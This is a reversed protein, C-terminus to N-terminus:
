AQDKAPRGLLLQDPLSTLDGAGLTLCLDGPRLEADLEAILDSRSPVYRVEQEPHAARVAGAILAGSIGPVAAEGAAYVDSVVVVDAGAFSDAFDQWLAATRSYRHPQFVAVVRDWGGAAATAVVVAVEGPLHGYDDVFTVGHREGRREFRRAVGGFRELAPAAVEFPVGIGLALALAGTANLANHRGPINLTVTGLREGGRTLDFTVGARVGNVGVLRLDADAVSGYTAAGPLRDALRAAAAGDVCVARPGAAASLFDAFAAELHAMDGYYDLHDAELSTVVAGEAGLRLFTGDSEDAEVVLWEGTDWRAGPGIGAIDGGVIFSPRLGAAVLITALMSSTTTKGHTGAVALVRRTACIAALMDARSLVPISQDRAWAVEPDDPGVATSATLADIGALRAPDHGVWTDVGVERVRRVVASDQRDSGTVHHGMAALVTAIASMGSGGVGVVHFRGPVTLDGTWPRPAGLREPM